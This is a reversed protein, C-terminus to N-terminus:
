YKKKFKGPLAWPNSLWFLSFFPSSDALHRQLDVQLNVEIDKFLMGHDHPTLFGSTEDFFLGDKRVLHFM